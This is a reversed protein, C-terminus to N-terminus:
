QGAAPAALAITAPAEETMSKLLRDAATRAAASLSSVVGRIDRKEIQV